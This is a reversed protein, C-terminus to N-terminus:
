GARYARLFTRVGEVVLPRVRGDEAANASGYRNLPVNFTLAIFQDAALRADPVDLLGAEAFAAFREALAEDPTDALANEGGEPVSGAQTRVLRQLTAYEASGLMDTAIRMSFAVLVDELDATETLDAVDTLTDDLIRRITTVLSEGVTDVVAQLLTRKDGFYDYVTRKSVEARAAVADVSSRDFGNALFLERAAALIAARKPTSGERLTKTSPM